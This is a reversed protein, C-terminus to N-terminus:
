VGGFEAKLVSDPSKGSEIVQVFTEFRSAKADVRSNIQQTIAAVEDTTIDRTRFLLTKDPSQVLVLEGRHYLDFIRDITEKPDLGLLGNFFQGQPRL